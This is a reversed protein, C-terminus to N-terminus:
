GAPSFTLNGLRGRFPNASTCAPDPGIERLWLLAHRTGSPLRAEIRQPEVDYATGIVSTGWEDPDDPPVERDSTFIELQYPATFTDIALTGASAKTLSVVLGVGRKGGMFQSSYCLTPWGSDPNSGALALRAQEDNEGAGDGDPDFAEVTAIEAPGPPETTTPTAVAGGEADDTSTDSTDTSDGDSTAGDDLASPDTGDDLTEPDGAALALAIAIVVIAAIALLVMVLTFSPVWNQQM